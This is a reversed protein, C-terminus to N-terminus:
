ADKKTEKVAKTCGLEELTEVIKAVNAGRIQEGHPEGESTYFAFTPMATVNHAGSVAGNKDVDVKIFMADYEESMDAFVPAIRRCPGCWTATFDVVVARKAAKAEALAEAFAEATECEVVRKKEVPGGRADGYGLMSRIVSGIFRFTVYM